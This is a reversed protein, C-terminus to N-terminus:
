KPPAQESPAADSAGGQGDSMLQKLRDFLGRRRRQQPVPKWLRQVVRMMFKEDDLGQDSSVDMLISSRRGLDDVGNPGVTYFAVGDGERVMRILGREPDYLDVPAEPLYDPVLGDLDAPMAGHDMAYLRCALAVAPLLRKARYAVATDRYEQPAYRTHPRTICELVGSVPQLARAGHRLTRPDPAQSAFQMLEDVGDAFGRARDLRNAAHFLFHTVHAAGALFPPASRQRMVSVYGINAPLWRWNPKNRRSQLDNAMNHGAMAASYGWGSDDNLLADILAEMQERRAPTGQYLGPKVDSELLVSAGFTEVLQGILNSFPYVQWGWLHTESHAQAKACLGSMYIVDLIGEVVEADDGKAFADLIAAIQLLVVRDSVIGPDEMTLSDEGPVDIDSLSKGLRAHRITQLVWENRQMLAEQEGADWPVRVNMALSFFMFSQSAKRMVNDSISINQGARNVAEITAAEEKSLAVRGNLGLEVLMADFRERARGEFQEARHAWTLHAWCFVVGLAAFMGVVRKLWWFRRPVPNEWVGLWGERSKSKRSM